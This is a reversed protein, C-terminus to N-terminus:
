IAGTLRTLSSITNRTRTKNQRGRRGFCRGTESHSGRRGTDQLTPQYGQVFDEYAYTPHFQVLTVRDDSGALHRAFERAVFTKGTGPPGQFIVQNKDYLLTEIEQLFDVPLTLDDALSQLDPKERDSVSLGDDDTNTNVNIPKVYDDWSKGDRWLGIIDQDYFYFNRGLKDKIGQRIQQIKRDVDDTPETIFRAFANAGAIQQKRSASITEFSDPFVIHLLIDKQIAGTNQNNVLLESEYNRSFLFDKFEWPDNLKREREDSKLEKWQEVSEILTGVQYPMLTKGVGLDIFQAQLGDILHNPIEVPTPSWGLVGEIRGQKDGARALILYYIYLVEGMLQYTEATSGSLQEELKVFFDRRSKDPQDLFRSHLEALLEPTWIAKGPTFLSGETRLAWDVWEKAAVYTKHDNGGTRRSGM